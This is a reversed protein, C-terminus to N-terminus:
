LIPLFLEYISTPDAWIYIAAPAWIYGHNYLWGHSCNWYIPTPATSFLYIFFLFFDSGSRTGGGISSIITKTFWENTWRDTRSGKMMQRRSKFTLRTSKRAWNHMRKGNGMTFCAIGTLQKTGWVGGKKYGEESFFGGLLTCWPGVGVITILHSAIAGHFGQGRRGPPFVLWYASSQSPLKLSSPQHRPRTSPLNEETFRVKSRTGPLKLVSLHGKFIMTGIALFHLMTM